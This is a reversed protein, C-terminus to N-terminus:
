TPHPPSTLTMLVMQSSISSSVCESVAVRVSEVPPDCCQQHYCGSCRLGDCLLIENGTESEGGGCLMCHADDSTRAANTIMDTSGHMQMWGCDRVHMLDRRPTERPVVEM